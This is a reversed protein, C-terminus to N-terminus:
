FPLRVVVSKPHLSARVRTRLCVEFGDRSGDTNSNGECTYLAAPSVARIMTAHAHRGMLPHWIFLWDGRQAEEVPVIYEKARAWNVFTPCYGTRPFDKPIHVIDINDIDPHAKHFIGNLAEAAAVIRYVAFALCWPEPDTLGVAALYVKIWKGWNTWRGNVRDERVGVNQIADAVAQRAIPGPLLTSVPSLRGTERAGVGQDERAM